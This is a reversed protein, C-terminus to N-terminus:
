NLRARNIKRTNIGTIFYEIEQKEKSGRLIPTVWVEGRGIMLGRWNKFLEDPMQSAIIAKVEAPFMESYKSHCAKSTKIKFAKGKLKITLPYSIRDCIWKVDNKKVAERLKLFFGTDEKTLAQGKRIADFAYVNACSISLLILLMLGLMRLM